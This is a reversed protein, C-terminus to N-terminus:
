SLVYLRRRKPSPLSRRWFRSPFFAVTLICVGFVACLVIGALEAPRLPHPASHHPPNPKHSVSFASSNHCCPSGGSETVFFPSSQTSMGTTDPGTEILDVVYWGEPVDVTHWTYEYLHSPIDVALIKSSSTMIELPAPPYVSIPKRWDVVSLTMLIPREPSLSWFFTLSSCATANGHDKLQVTTPLISLSRKFLPERLISIPHQHTKRDRNPRSSSGLPV